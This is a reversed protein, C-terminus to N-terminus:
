TLGHFHCGRDQALYPLRDGVSFRLGQDYFSHLKCRWAGPLKTYAHKRRTQAVRIQRNNISRTGPRHGHHQSVFGRALDDLEPALHLAKTDAIAYDEGKHGVAATAWRTRAAACRQAFRSSHGIGCASQETASPAPVIGLAHRQLMMEADGSKGFKGHYRRVGRNADIM